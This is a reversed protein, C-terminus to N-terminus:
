EHANGWFSFYIKHILLDARAVLVCNKRVQLTGSKNSILLTTCLMPHSANYSIKGMDYSIM